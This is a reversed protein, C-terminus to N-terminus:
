GGVALGLATAWAVAAAATDQQLAAAHEREIWVDAVELCRFTNISPELITATWGLRLADAAHDVSRVHDNHGTEDIGVTV